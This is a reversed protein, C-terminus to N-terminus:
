GEVTAPERAAPSRAPLYDEAHGLPSFAFAVPILFSLAGSLAYVFTVNTLEVLYGGLLTGLPIASWAVVSAVSVVRGLLHNPAIQQRLSSTNINFLVGLGRIVAWIPLAVWYYPSFAFAIVLLGEVALAGLAVVGFSFRRRLPGAALSLVIVGVSGSSVLLGYQFDTARLREKAFLVLQVFTVTSVFNVLAMMISINRLVPHGWVYRLGEAIDARISRRERGEEANFSGRIWALFLASVIFSLADFLLVNVVPTLTAVLGALPPGAIHATQYSAQIRGNAKVLDDTSVLSPVAAFQAADFLIRLTTSIFGTAYIWWLPLADLYYLAPISAIVAARLLDTRIMLRKRNSRDAWAGGILGFLLYPLFTAASSIALNTASGTLQYVLLPIAFGTFSSGFASLGQGAFFKWFDSRSADSM